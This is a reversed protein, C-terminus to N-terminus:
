RPGKLTRSTLAYLLATLSSSDGVRLISGTREVFQSSLKLGWVRIVTGRSYCLWWGDHDVVIALAILNFEDDCLASDPHTASVHDLILNLPLPVVGGPIRPFGVLEEDVLGSAGFSNGM